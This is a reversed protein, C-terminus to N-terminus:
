GESRDKFDGSPILRGEVDPCNWYYVWARVREEGEITVLTQRRLYVSDPENRPDYEELGDLAALTEAYSGAALELLEGWVRGPEPLLYPYGGEAVYYLRGEVSGRREAITRGKLFRPYNKEGPRLTGYVFIPLRQQRAETKEDTEPPM